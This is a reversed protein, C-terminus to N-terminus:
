NGHEPEQPAFCANEQVSLTQWGSPTQTYCECYATPEARGRWLVFTVNTQVCLAEETELVAANSLGIGSQQTEQVLWIRVRQEPASGTTISIEGRMALYLLVCPSLLAAFWLILAIVCGPNRLPHRAVHPPTIEEM